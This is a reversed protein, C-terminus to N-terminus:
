ALLAGVNLHMSILLHQHRDAKCSKQAEFVSFHSPHCVLKAVAEGNKRTVKNGSTLQTWAARLRSTLADYLAQPPANILGPSAMVAGLVEVDPDAVFRLLIKGADAKHRTQVAHLGQSM